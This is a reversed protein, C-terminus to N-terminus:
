LEGWPIAEDGPRPVLSGLCNTCVYMVYVVLDIRASPNPSIWTGMWLSQHCGVSLVSLGSVV